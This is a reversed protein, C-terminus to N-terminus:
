CLWCACAQPAPAESLHRSHQLAPSAIDRGRIETLTHAGPASALWTPPKPHVHVRPGSVMAAHLPLLPHGVRQAVLWSAAPVLDTDGDQGFGVVFLAERDSDESVELLDAALQHLREEAWLLAEAAEAAEDTLGQPLSLELAQSRVSEGLADVTEQVDHSAAHWVSRGCSPQSLQWHLRQAAHM